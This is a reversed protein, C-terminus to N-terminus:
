PTEAVAGDLLLKELNREHLAVASSIVESGLVSFIKLMSTPKCARPCVQTEWIKEAAAATAQAAIDEKTMQVQYNGKKSETGTGCVAAGSNRVQEWAKYAKDGLKKELKEDLKAFLSDTDLKDGGM